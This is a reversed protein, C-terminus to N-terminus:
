QIGIRSDTAKGSLRRVFFDRFCTVCHVLLGAITMAGIAIVIATIPSARQRTVEDAATSQVQTGRTTKTEEESFVESRAIQCM